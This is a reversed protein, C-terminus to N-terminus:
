GTYRSRDRRLRQHVVKLALAVAEEVSLGTTDLIYADEAATLPAATRSADQRDRQEIEKLVEQLAVAGAGGSEALERARRRAREQLSATVYLKVCADSLVVTGIDRGDM